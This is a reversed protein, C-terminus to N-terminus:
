NHRMLMSIFTPFFGFEDCSHFPLPTRLVVPVTLGLHYRVKGIEQPGEIDPTLMTVLHGLSFFGQCRILFSQKGISLWESIATHEKSLKPCGTIVNIGSM